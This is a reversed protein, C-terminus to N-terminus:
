EFKKASAQASKLYHALLWESYDELIGAVLESVGIGASRSAWDLSDKCKLSVRSSIVVKAVNKKYELPKKFNLKKV